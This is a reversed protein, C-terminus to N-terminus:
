EFRREIGSDALIINVDIDVWDGPQIRSNGRDIVTFQTGVRGLVPLQKDKWKINRPKRSKQMAHYMNRLIDTFNMAPVFREIEWGDTYGASVVATNVPNKAKYVMSYGTTEGTNLQSIEAVQAKLVGIKNLKCSTKCVMRGVLASGIRVADLATEPFRLAASSNAIHRMGVSIGKEELKKVTETFHLFQGSTISDDEAFAAPFHAFIGGFELGKTNYVCLIREFDKCKVGFRGMGADLKVHVKAPCIGAIKAACEPSSVTMTVNLEFLKKITEEDYTPTLLLIEVDNYGLNRIAVAEEPLSVGFFRIGSEYWVEVAKDIGLGYGNCKVVAIIQSKVTSKINEINQKLDAQSISIYKNM